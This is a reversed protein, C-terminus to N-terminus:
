QYYAFGAISRSGLREWYTSRSSPQSNKREQSNSHLRFLCRVPLLIKRKWHLGPIPVRRPLNLRFHAITRKGTAIAAVLEHERSTLLIKVRGSTKGFWLSARATPLLALRLSVTTAIAKAMATAKTVVAVTTPVGTRTTAVKTAVAAPLARKVRGRAAFAPFFGFYREIWAWSLRNVATLAELSASRVARAPLGAIGVYFVSVM